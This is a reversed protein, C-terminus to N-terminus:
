YKIWYICYDDVKILFKKFNIKLLFEDVAKTCGDYYGYDDIIVVGGIKAKEYLTELGVKTSAYWDDDLRQLSIQQIKDPILM